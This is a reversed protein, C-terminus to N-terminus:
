RNDKLIKEAEEEDKSLPITLKKKLYNAILQVAKKNTVIRGTNSIARGQWVSANRSWNVNELKKLCIDLEYEPNKYLYAGIRGLAQIVVGQAVIYNERLDIKALEGSELDRWPTIHSAVSSWFRVLFQEVDPKPCNGTIMKNATYLTNLTFLNSSYKGLIDREKDTYLNLFEVQNIVRRNIVAVPDRTDYLESISNSTKVANKNLDTFIQQSRALGQDAYLVISITEDGLSPDEKIADLIAAKRHQGDNILFVADMSIEMIGVDSNKESPTFVFDGDVSAALASFVYTDRNELIYKSIVPIRAENLRRQARFEPMVYEEDNPFLKALMKLPVMAIYYEKGAQKGKVVPFKYVFDM